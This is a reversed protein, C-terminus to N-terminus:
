YLTGEGIAPLFLEWLGSDVRRPMPHSRGDWFNFDGVVSVRRAHPAWVAFRTGAVGDQVMIHAGLRAHLRTHTGEILLHDDLPGLSPGFAYPDHIDQPGTAYHARLVRCDARAVGPLFGEFVGQEGWPTLPRAPLPRAGGPLLAEVRAAGPLFARWVVGGAVAHPGLLAFPDGHTGGLFSALEADQAQPNQM